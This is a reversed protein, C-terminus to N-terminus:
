CISTRTSTVIRAGVIPDGTMAFSHNGVVASPIVNGDAANVAKAAKQM